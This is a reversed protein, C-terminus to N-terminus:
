VFAFRLTRPTAIEIEDWTWAPQPLRWCWGVKGSSGSVATGMEDTYMPVADAERYITGRHHAPDHYSIALLIHYPHELYVPPWLSIRDRQVRELVQHILWSAGTPRFISRRDTFGPVVGRQALEGGRQIAPDLWIRCMDVVQWQTPLGPYGWWGRNKTAHPIGVICLGVRRHGHRVIYAMPRSRPDAKSHLYHHSVATEQAWAMDEKTGLAVTLEM